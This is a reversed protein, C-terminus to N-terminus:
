KPRTEEARLGEILLTLLSQTRAMLTSAYFLAWLRPDGSVQEPRAGFLSYVLACASELIDIAQWYTLSEPKQVYKKCLRWVEEMFKVFEEGLVHRKIEEPKVRRVKELM